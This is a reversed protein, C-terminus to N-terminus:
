KWMVFRLAFTTARDKSCVLILGLCLCTGVKFAGLLHQLRAPAGGQYGSLPCVQAQTRCPFLLGCDGFQMVEFLEVLM